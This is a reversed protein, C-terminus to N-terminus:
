GSTAMSQTFTLEAPGDELQLTVAVIMYGNLIDQSTMTSGLGVRVSFAQSADDGALGGEQWVETLMSSISATLGAWTTGDNPAFVYPQMGARISRRVLGVTRDRSLQAQPETLDLTRDGMVVTGYHTLEMVPNIGEVTLDGAATNDAVVTPELDTLAQAPGGSPAWTGSAQATASLLGAFVAASSVPRGDETFGASLMTMSSADDGRLPAVWDGLTGVWDDSGSTVVATPPDLVATADQNSALDGMTAAVQTWDGQGLAAMAPVVLLDWGTLEAVTGRLAGVLGTVSELQTTVVVASAGGQAFFQEVGAALAPSPDQVARTFDDASGVLVSPIPHGDDTATGSGVIVAVGTSALVMDTAAPLEQVYVGPHQYQVDPDAVVLSTTTTTTPAATTAPATTPATTPVADQAGAPATAAACLLAVVLPSMTSRRM